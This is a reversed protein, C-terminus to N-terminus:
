ISNSSKIVIRNLLRKFRLLKAVYFDEFFKGSASFNYDMQCLFHWQAVGFSIVAEIKQNETRNQELKETVGQNGILLVPFLKVCGLTILLATLVYVSSVSSHNQAKLRNELWHDIKCLCKDGLFLFNSFIETTHKKQPQTYKVLILLSWQFYLDLQLYPILAISQIIYSSILTM